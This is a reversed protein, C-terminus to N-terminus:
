FLSGFFFLKDLLEGILEEDFIKALLITMEYEALDKGSFQMAYPEIYFQGKEETPTVTFQTILEEDPINDIRSVVQVVRIGDSKFYSWYSTDFNRSFAEYYSAGDDYPCLEQVMQIYPNDNGDSNVAAIFDTMVLEFKGTFFLIACIILGVIEIVNIIRKWTKKIEPFCGENEQIDDGVENNIDEDYYSNQNTSCQENYNDNEVIKRIETHVGASKLKEKIANAEEISTTEKIVIPLHSILKKAEEPTSGAIDIITRIADLNGPEASCIIVNYIDTYIRNGCVSCEVAWTDNYAGCKKCFM